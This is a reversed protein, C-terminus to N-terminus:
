LSGAYSSGESPCLTGQTGAIPVLTLALVPTLVVLLWMQWGLVSGVM